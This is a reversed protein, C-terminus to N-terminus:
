PGGRLAARALATYRAGEPRLDSRYLVVAGACFAERPATPFPGQPGHGGREVRAVTLHPRFRRREAEHWGAEGLASAVARQAETAHGGADVLDLAIVRPQRKPLAATDAPTLCAAPLGAVAHLAVRGIDAVAAQPRWGLFALTVHLAEAPVLRLSQERGFAARAWGAIATRIPAPLELAVFLRVRPAEPQSTEM